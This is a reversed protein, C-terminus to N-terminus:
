WTGVALDSVTLKHRIVLSILMFQLHRGCDAVKFCDRVEYCRLEFVASLYKLYAVSLPRGNM